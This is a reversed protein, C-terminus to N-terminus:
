DLKKIELKIDVLGKIKIDMRITADQEYTLGM